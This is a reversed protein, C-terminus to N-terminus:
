LRKQTKCSATQGEPEHGTPLFPTQSPSRSRHVGWRCEAPFGRICLTNLKNHHCLILTKEFADLLRPNIHQSLKWVSPSLWLWAMSDICHFAGSSVGIWSAKLLLAHPESVIYKKNKWNEFPQLCKANTVYEGGHNLDVQLVKSSIPDDVAIFM